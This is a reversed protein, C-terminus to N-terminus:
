SASRPARLNACLLSCFSNLDEWSRTRVRSSEILARSDVLLVKSFSFLSTSSSVLISCLWSNPSLACVPLTSPLLSCTQTHLHKYTHTHKLTSPLLSCTHTHLHKYTHTHTNSHLPFFHVRTCTSTHVHFTGHIYILAKPSLICVLPTSPTISCTHM